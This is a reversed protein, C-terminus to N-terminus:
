QEVEYIERTHDELSDLDRFAIMGHERPLTFNMCYSIRAVGIQHVRSTLDRFQHKVQDPTVTRGRFSYSDPGESAFTITAEGEVQPWFWNDNLGAIQVGESKLRDIESILWQRRWQAYGFVLSVLLMVLLLTSLTFRRPFM